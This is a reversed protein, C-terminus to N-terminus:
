QKNESYEKSTETVHFNDETRKDRRPFLYPESCFNDAPAPKGENQAMLQLKLM